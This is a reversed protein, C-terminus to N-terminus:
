KFIVRATQITQASFYGLCGGQLNSIPNSPAVSQADLTQTLSNFYTYVNQDICMMQLDVTDGKAFDSNHINVEKHLGNIYKDDTVLISKKPENNIYLKYRYFNAVDPDDQIRNVVFYVTQGLINEETQYVSDMLTKQPMKSQATYEKNDVVVRLSYTRGPVGVIKQTHYVGASDMKLTDVVGLDDSIVVLANSVGIFQSEDNFNTSRSILLTYPGVTDTVSGEIVLQPDIDKLDPEIVSECSSFAILVLLLLILQQIIRNKLIYKNM